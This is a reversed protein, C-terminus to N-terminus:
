QKVHAPWDGYNGPLLALVTELIAALFMIDLLANRQRPKLERIKTVSRLNMEEEGINHRAACLLRHDNLVTVLVQADEDTLELHAAKNPRPAIQRRWARLLGLNAGKLDHLTEIWERTQEDSMRASTCGKKSYWVEAIRPHIEGPKIAYHRIIGAFIRRLIHTELPAFQLIIRENHRAARM